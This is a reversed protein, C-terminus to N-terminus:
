FRESWSALSHDSRAAGSSRTIPLARGHRTDVMWLTRQGDLRRSCVVHRGDPAWSPSEWDGAARTIVKTGASPHSMDFVALAYQSGMRTAFCISNSLRSWDPSVTEASTRLLRKPQTKARASTLYLQPKGTMDSVYCVTVGDPSWCPSSEVASDHTLARTHRTAVELLYLDVQKERSLSLVAWQGDPSLAAGSNLGPFTSLRRQSQRQRDVLVVSTANQEYLTYVLSQAKAGWSPETSISRNHTLQRADTGDFNCSFVEKVVADAHRAGVAFALKTSCLGPNDFLVKILGDVALFVLRDTDPGASRQVFRALQGSQSSIKVDLAAPTGPVHRVTVVYAAADAQNVLAFWDCRTVVDRFRSEIGQPATVSAIYLTPNGTTAEKLVHVEPEDASMLLQCVSAVSCTVLITFRTRAVNMM